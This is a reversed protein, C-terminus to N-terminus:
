RRTAVHVIWVEPLLASLDDTPSGAVANAVVEWARELNTELGPGQDEGFNGGIRSQEIEVDSKSTTSQQRTSNACVDMEPEIDSSKPGPMYTMAANTTM